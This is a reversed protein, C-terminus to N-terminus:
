HCSAGKEVIFYFNYLRYSITVVGLLIFTSPILSPIKKNLPSIFKRILLPAFSLAPTTGLWFSFIFAAAYFLNSTTLSMILVVWLFGCPLLASLSGISFSRLSSYHYFRNFINSWAKKYLGQYKQSIKSRSIKTKLIDQIGIIIFTIGILLASFLKINANEKIGSIEIGIYPIIVGLSLYGLLRGIHYLTVEKKSKTTASVVGGCMGLCHGSGLLGTTFGLIILGYLSLHNLENLQDM